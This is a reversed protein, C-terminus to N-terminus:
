VVQQARCTPLLDYPMMGSAASFWRGSTFVKRDLGLFDRWATERQSGRELLAGGEIKDIILLQIPTTCTFTMQLLKFIKNTKRM